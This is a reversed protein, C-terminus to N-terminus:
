PAGLETLVRQYAKKEIPELGSEEWRKIKAEALIQRAKEKNKAGLYAQALHFYKAPKPAIEIAKELDDIAHQSDGATLYVVGRTDLLDPQPGQLEIARNIYPLAEGGKGDKVAMLMAVNNHSVGSRDGQKIARQYLDEAEQYHEQQGRLIALSVLLLTKSQESQSRALAQDLWKSVRELQAPDPKKTGKILVDICTGAMREIEGPNAWHPELIDLAEDTRDHHGLFKALAIKGRTTASLKAHRRYLQEALKIGGLKEALNALTEMVNSALQPRDAAFARIREAARDLQDHVRDLEVQLVLTSLANPQLKKLEDVFEQADALDQKEGPRRHRLLADAFQALFVSRRNLTEVDWFNKTRLNLERYKERAKPWDGNIEYFRAL